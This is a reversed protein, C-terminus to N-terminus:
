STGLLHKHWLFIINTDVTPTQHIIPCSNFTEQLYYGCEWWELHSKMDLNPPVITTGARSASSQTVPSTKRVFLNMSVGEQAADVWSLWELSSDLFHSMPIRASLLIGEPSYHNCLNGLYKMWAGRTGWASQGVVETPSELWLHTSMKWWLTSTTGLLHKAELMERKNFRM